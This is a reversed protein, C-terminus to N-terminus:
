GLQQSCQEITGLCGEARYVGDMVLQHGGGEREAKEGGLRWISTPVGVSSRPPAAPHGFWQQNGAQSHSPM